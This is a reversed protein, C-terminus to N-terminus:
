GTAGQLCGRWPAGRRSRDPVDVFAVYLILGPIGTTAAAQLYGDHVMSPIVDAPLQEPEVPRYRPYMLGFSEFGVGAIPHDRIMGAAARYFVFRNTFSPDSELEAM